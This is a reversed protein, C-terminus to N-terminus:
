ADGSAKSRCAGTRRTGDTLTSRSRGFVIAFCDGFACINPPLAASKALANLVVREVMLDRGPYNLMRGVPLLSFKKDHESILCVKAPRRSQACFGLFATVHVIRQPILALRRLSRNQLPQALAADLM